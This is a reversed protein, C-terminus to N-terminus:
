VQAHELMIVGAVIVTCVGGVGRVRVRTVDAATSRVSSCGCSLRLLKNSPVLPSSQMCLSHSHLIHAHVSSARARVCVFVCVCVCMRVYACACVGTHVPVTMYRVYVVAHGVCCQGSASRQYTVYEATSQLARACYMLAVALALTGPLHAWVCTSVCAVEGHSAALTTM